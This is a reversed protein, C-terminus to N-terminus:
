KLRKSSLYSDSHGMTKEIYLRKELGVRYDVDIFNAGNERRDFDNETKGLCIGM